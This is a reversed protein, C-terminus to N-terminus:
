ARQFAHDVGIFRTKGSKKAEAAGRWYETNMVQEASSLAHLRPLDVYDVKLSSSKRRHEPDNGGEFGAEGQHGRVRATASASRRKGM